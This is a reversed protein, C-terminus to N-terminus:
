DRANLKNRVRQQQRAPVGKLWLALWREHSPVGLAGQILHVSYVIVSFAVAGVYLITLLSALGGGLISFKWNAVVFLKLETAQPDQLFTNVQEVVSKLNFPTLPVEASQDPGHIVLFGSDEAKVERDNVKRSRDYRVSGAHVRDSVRTVPSVHMTQYPVFFLLCVQATASVDGERREFSVWAVPAIATVLAPVGVFVLLVFLQTVVFGVVRSLWGRQTPRRQFRLDDAPHDSADFSM